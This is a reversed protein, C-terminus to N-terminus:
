QRESDKSTCEPHFLRPWWHEESNGVRHSRAFYKPFLLRTQTLPAGLQNWRFIPDTLSLTSYYLVAWGPRRRRQGLQLPTNQPERFTVTSKKYSYWQCPMQRRPFVQSLWTEVM